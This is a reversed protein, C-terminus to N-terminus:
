GIIIIIIYTIDCKRFYLRSKIIVYIVNDIYEHAMYLIYVINHMRIIVLLIVNNNHLYSLNLEFVSAVMTYVDANPFYLLFTFWSKSFLLEVTYMNQIRKGTYLSIVICGGAIQPCCLFRLWECYIFKRLLRIIYRIYPLVINHLALTSHM